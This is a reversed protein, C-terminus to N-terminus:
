ALHIVEVDSWVRSLREAVLSRHCESHKAESCMLCCVNREFFPRDLTEPVGREDMLAEFSARYATWDKDKRIADLIEPTPALLPLHLYDCEALNRLFYPLDGRKAFGSLQGDPNLRIDVLVTAGHEKLLQFFHEASKRTFGITLLRM